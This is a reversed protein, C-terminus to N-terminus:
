LDFSAGGSIIPLVKLTTANPYYHVGLRFGRWHHSIGFGILKFTTNYTVGASLVNGPRDKQPNYAWSVDSEMQAGQIYGATEIGENTINRNPYFLNGGVFLAIQPIVEVGVVAGPMLSSIAISPNASSVDHLNVYQYGLYVASAIGPFNLLAFKAQVNYIRYFDAVLNTNAELFDTVGVGSTTGIIVRGPPLTFPIPLLHTYSLLPNEAITTAHLPTPASICFATNLALLFSFTGKTKKQL